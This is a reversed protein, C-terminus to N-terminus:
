QKIYVHTKTGKYYREHDETLMETLILTDENFEWSYVEMNTPPGNGDNVITTDEFIIADEGGYPHLTGFYDHIIYKNFNKFGSLQGSPKLELISIDNDNMLPEYKGSILSDIFFAYFNPELKEFFRKGEIGDILRREKKNIRRFVYTISDKRGSYDEISKAKILDNGSDYFFQYSGAEQILVLSDINNNLELKKKGYLLGHSALTDDDIILIVASWTLGKSAQEAISRNALISDIYDSMIWGGNLSSWQIKAVIEGKGLASEKECQNCALLIM